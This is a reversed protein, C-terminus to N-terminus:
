SAHAVTVADGDKAMRLQKVDRVFLCNDANFFLKVAGPANATGGVLSEVTGPSLLAFSRIRQDQESVQSLLKHLDIPQNM